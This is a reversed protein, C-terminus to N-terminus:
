KPDNPEPSIDKSVHDQFNCFVFKEYKIKQDQPVSVWKNRNNWLIARAPIKQICLDPLFIISSHVFFFLFLLLLIVSILAFIMIYQTTVDFIWPCMDKPM